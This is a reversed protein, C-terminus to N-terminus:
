IETVTADGVAGNFPLYEGEINPDLRRWRPGVEVGLADSIFWIGFPNWWIFWAGDARRYSMKGGEIIHPLYDGTVDPTM